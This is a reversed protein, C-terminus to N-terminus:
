KQSQQFNKLFEIVTQSTLVNKLAIHMATETDDKM